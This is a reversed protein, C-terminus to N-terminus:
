RTRNIITGQRDSANKYGSLARRGAKLSQMESALLSKVNLARPMSERLLQIIQKQLFTRRALLQRATDSIDPLGLQETLRLDTQKTKEQLISFTANFQQISDPSQTSFQHHLEGLLGIMEEQQKVSQVALTELIEYENVQMLM